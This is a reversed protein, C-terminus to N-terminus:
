LDMDFKAVEIFINRAIAALTLDRTRGSNSVPVVAQNDCSTLFRKGAGVRQWVEVVVLIKLM